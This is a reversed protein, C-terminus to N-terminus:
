LPHYNSPIASHNILLHSTSTPEFKVRWGIRWDISSSSFFTLHHILIFSSSCFLFLFPKTTGQHTIDEVDILHVESSFGPWHWWFQLQVNNICNCHLYPNQKLITMTQGELPFYEALLKPPVSHLYISAMGFISFCIFLSITPGIM